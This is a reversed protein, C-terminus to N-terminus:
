EDGEGDKNRRLLLFFVAAAAAIVGAAIAAITSAPMGAASAADAAADAAANGDGEADGEAGPAALPNTDDEIREGTVTNGNDRVLTTDNGTTISTLGGENTLTATGATGAAAGTGAVATGTGTTTGLNTVTTVGRDVFVEDYVTTYTTIVTNEHLDDNVDRYWITYLKQKQGNVVEYNYYNHDITATQGNLRIYTNGGATFSEPVDISLYKRQMVFDPTITYSQTDLQANNAINVYRVTVNYSDTPDEGEKGYYITTTNILNNSDYACTLTKETGPAVVLGDISQPVDYTATEGAKITIPTETRIIRGTENIGKTADVLTIQWVADSTEEMKKYAIDFSQPDESDVSPRLVIAGNEDYTATGASTDLEWFEVTGDANKVLIYAPPAYRYDKTVILQDILAGLSSGNDDSKLDTSSGDSAVYNFKAVYPKAADGWTNDLEVCMISFETMGPYKATVSGLTQITRYYKGGASILNDIAISKSEDKSITFPVKTLEANTGLEYFTVHGEIETPLSSDNVYRYVGDTEGDLKYDEGDLELVSPAEFPRDGDSAGLTRIAIVKTDVLSGDKYFEGKVAQVTGTYLKTKGSHDAYATITYTDDASFNDIELSMIGVFEGNADQETDELVYMLREAIKNGNKDAVDVWLRDGEEGAVTLVDVAQDSSSGDETLYWHDTGSVDGAGIEAYATVPAWVLTAAVLAAALGMTCKKSPQNMKM